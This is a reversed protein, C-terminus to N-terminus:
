TQGSLVRIAAIATPPRPALRTAGIEEAKLLGLM